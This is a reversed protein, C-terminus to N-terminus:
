AKEREMKYHMTMDGAPGMAGATTGDIRNLKGSAVDVYVNFNTDLPAQLQPVTVKLHEDLKAEGNIISELKATGEIKLGNPDEYSIPVSEGVKFEHGYYLSAMQSVGGGKIGSPLNTPKGDPGYHITAGPIAPTPVPSGNVSMQFDDISVDVDASGDAAVSKVAETMTMGGDMSGLQMDGSMQMKYVDKEGQVFHRVPKFTDQSGLCAAALTLSALVLKAKM